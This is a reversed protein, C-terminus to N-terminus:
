LSWKLRYKLTEKILKNEVNHLLLFCTWFKLLIYFQFYYSTPHNIWLFCYKLYFQMFIIQIHKMEKSLLWSKFILGLTYHVSISWSKALLVSINHCYLNGRVIRIM